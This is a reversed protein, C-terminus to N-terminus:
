IEPVAQVKKKLYFGCHDTGSPSYIMFESSTDNVM